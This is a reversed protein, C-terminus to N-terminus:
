MVPRMAGVGSAQSEASEAGIQLFGLDRIQSASPCLRFSGISPHDSGPRGSPLDSPRSGLSLPGSTPLAEPGIDLRPQM